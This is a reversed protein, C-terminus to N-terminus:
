ALEDVAGIDLPAATTDARATRREGTGAFADVYILTFPQRKLATTYAKLYQAVSRVKRETWAGGFSQMKSQVMLAIM